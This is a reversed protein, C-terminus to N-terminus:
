FAKELISNNDINLDDWILLIKIILNILLKYLDVLTKEKLMLELHVILQNANGNISLKRQIAIIDKKKYLFIEYLQALTKFKNNTM